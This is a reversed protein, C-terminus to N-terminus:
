YKKEEFSEIYQDVKNFQRLKTFEEILDYGIKGWFRQLVNEVLTPRDLFVDEGDMMSFFWGEVTGYMNLAAIEVKQFEPIRYLKFFKEVKKIWVHLNTEDFSPFDMKPHHDPDLCQPRFPGLNWALGGGKDRTDHSVGYHQNLTEMRTSKQEMYKLVLKLQFHDLRTDIKNPTSPGQPEVLPLDVVVEVVKKDGKKDKDAMSFSVVVLMVSQQETCVALELSTESLNIERRSFCQAEFAPLHRSHCSRLDDLHVRIAKCLTEIEWIFIYPDNWRFDDLQSSLCHESSSVIDSLGVIETSETAGVRVMLGGVASGVVVVAITGNTASLLLRGAAQLFSELWSSSSSQFRCTSEPTQTVVYDAERSRIQSFMLWCTVISIIMSSILRLLVRMIIFIIDYILYNSQDDSKYCSFWTILMCVLLLDSLLPCFFRRIKCFIYKYILNCGGFDWCVCVLENG